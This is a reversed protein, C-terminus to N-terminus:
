VPTRCAPSVGDSPKTYHLVGMAAAQLAGCRRCPRACCRNARFVEGLVLGGTVNGRFLEGLLRLFASNPGIQARLAFKKASERDLLSAPLVKERM